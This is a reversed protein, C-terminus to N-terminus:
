GLPPPRGGLLATGVRVHTAGHQLAAELDGSMGASIWQAAPHDARVAAATEALRAFAPGPDASLPAVAMVGGLVLAPQAAVAAAVQAVEAPVAGGRGARDAAEDLNVQVLATVTRDRRTAAAGLSEALQARDVSHVVDAYGAVSTAKNRQLRGVFHWRPQPVGAERLAAVKDRADQDRNEGFDAVGLDLLARVDSAPFTKTVAVLTVSAPDRGAAECGRVIRDRLAALSAALEATRDSM